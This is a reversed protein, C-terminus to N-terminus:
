FFVSKTPKMHLPASNRRAAFNNYVGLPSCGRIGKGSDDEKDPVDYSNNRSWIFVRQTPSTVPSPEADFLSDRREMRCFINIQCEGCSYIVKQRPLKRRTKVEGDETSQPQEKNNQVQITKPRPSPSPENYDQVDTISGVDSALSGVDSAPRTVVIKSPVIVSPSNRRQLHRRKLYAKPNLKQTDAISILAKRMGIISPGLKGIEPLIQSCIFILLGSAISVVLIVLVIILFINYGDLVLTEGM